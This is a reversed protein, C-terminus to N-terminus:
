NYSNPFRKIDVGLYCHIAIREDAECPSDRHFMRVDAVLLDGKDCTYKIRKKQNDFYADDIKSYIPNLKLNKIKFYPYFLSFRRLSRLFKSKLTHTRPVFEFPGNSDKVKTLHLFFKYQKRFSDVHWRNHYFEKKCKKNVITLMCFDRKEDFIEENLKKLKKYIKKLEPILRQSNWIRIETNGYNLEFNTKENQNIYAKIGDYANIVEEDNIFKKISFHGEKKLEKKYNSPLKINM